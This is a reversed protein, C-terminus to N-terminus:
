AIVTASGSNVVHGCTTASTDIAIDIGALKVNANGTSITAAAHPASGHATILDGVIAVNIGAIQVNTQLTGLITVPPGSNITDVGIQAVGPM